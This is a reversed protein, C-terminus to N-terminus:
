QQVKPFTAIRYSVTHFREQLGAADKCPNIQFIFFLRFNYM